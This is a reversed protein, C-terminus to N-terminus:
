ELQRYQELLVPLHDYGDVGITPILEPRLQALITAFTEGLQGKLITLLGAPQRWERSAISELFYMGLCGTYIARNSDQLRYYAEALYALNQGQLYLDGSVQAAKLGELLHEVAAKPQELVVHAIGLSNFAFAQSQRDGLQEALKLGQQLYNIATEYVEPEAQEVQQAQLVESYGLNVLANAEGLRDGSQRSLILARQSYNIAESYRKQAVCTRSLHNLNAIECPRDGAEAAIERAIDHFEKARDLLGQARESSGILTLIRAKEQTGEVRKLPENLYNVISRLQSGPFSAFVGGYLPFYPRQAFSRLIQLTVQFAGESLQTRHLSNLATAQAFGRALQSWIISFALFTSISLKAGVKADYVLRDFWAILGQQLYQLLIVLEIWTRTDLNALRAAFESVSENLSLARFLQILLPNTLQKSWVAWPSSQGPTGAFGLAQGQDYIWSVLHSQVRDWSELGQRIGAALQYLEQQTDTDSVDGQQQLATALQKLQTSSLCQPQNPDIARLFETLRQAADAAIVSQIVSAIAETAQNQQQWREWEGQITQLARRRRSAKAQKLEDTETAVQVQVSEVQTQLSREFLEGTGPIVGEVLLQYVQEKSRINGKLTMQVIQDLLQNYRDASPLLESM